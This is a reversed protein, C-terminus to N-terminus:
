SNPFRREFTKMGEGVLYTGTGGVTNKKEEMKKNKSKNSHEFIGMESYLTLLVSPTHVKHM